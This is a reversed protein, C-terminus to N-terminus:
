ADLDLVKKAVTWPNARTPVFLPRCTLQTEKAPPRKTFIHQPVRMGAYTHFNGDDEMQTVAGYLGKGVNPATVIVTGDPLYPTDAGDDAEYSATYCIIPLMRGRFNFTGLQYADRGLEDPNLRGFEARRNDLMELIWGDTMLFDAVDQAVVIETAARGKRTLMQIMTCIDEYWNGITWVGNTKTSHAWDASPTFAAPNNAGDYFQVRIDEYVDARDTIHRMTTGNDLITNVALFEETRSIRLSLEQLDHILFQRARDAPTAQSLLSEGFGRKQLQDLTLPMSIAINAPELEYTSFGDRTGPIAGIRPLVFPAKKQATDDKYDVLVRSTGFIDMATNTPFYRTRFFTHEIPLERVAALMYYTSYIDM